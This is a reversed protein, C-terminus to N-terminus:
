YGLYLDATGLKKVGVSGYFKSMIYKTFRCVFHSLAFRIWTGHFFMSMNPNFYRIMLTRFTCILIRIFKRYLIMRTLAPFFGDM